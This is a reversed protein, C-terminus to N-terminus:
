RHRELVYITDSNILNHLPTYGSDNQNNINPIKGRNFLLNIIDFIGYYALMHLSNSGNDELINIDFGNNLLM